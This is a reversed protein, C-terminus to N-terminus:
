HKSRTWGAAVAEAETCFWSDGDEPRVETTSYLLSEPVLYIREGTRADVNGKIVRVFTGSFDCEGGGGAGPLSPLTGGSFAPAETTPLPTESARPAPEDEALAEEWYGRRDAKASEEADLFSSKYVFDQPFDSVVAFGGTLMATNIMEGDAYVYRLIRGGDDTDVAGKELQVMRDLVKFRNFELAREALAGGGDAGGPMRIGLYRLRFVDGAIEVDLTVGDVVGVVKAVSLLESSPILPTPSPTPGPGPTEEACAIALLLVACFAALARHGVNRHSGATRQGM